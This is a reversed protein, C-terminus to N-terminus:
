LQNAFVRVNFDRRTLKKKLNKSPSKNCPFYVSASEHRALGTDHFDLEIHCSLVNKNKLFNM